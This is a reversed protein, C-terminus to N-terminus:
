HSIIRLLFLGQLSSLLGDGSRNTVSKGCILGSKLMLCNAVMEPSWYSNVSIFFFFIVFVFRLKRM